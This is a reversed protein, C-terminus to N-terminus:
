IKKPRKLNLKINNFYNKFNQKYNPTSIEYTNPRLHGYKKIFQVKSKNLSKNMEFSVSNITELFHKKKIM